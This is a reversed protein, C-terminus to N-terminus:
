NTEKGKLDELVGDLADFRSAWLRRHRDLWAAEDALPRPGLTCRRVRGIKRTSVLGAAELVGVHKKMGTPTMRFSSALETISADERGLRELVGRRTADSLAAFAADLAAPQLHVM